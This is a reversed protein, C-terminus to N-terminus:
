SHVCPESRQPKKPKYVLEYKHKRHESLYKITTAKLIKHDLGEEIYNKNFWLVCDIDAITEVDNREYKKRKKDAM